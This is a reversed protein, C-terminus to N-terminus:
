ASWQSIHWAVQNHYHDEVKEVRLQPEGAFWRGRIRGLHFGMSTDFGRHSDVKAKDFKQALQGPLTYRLPAYAADELLRRGLEGPTVAEEKILTWWAHLFEAWEEQRTDSEQRMRSRNSLFGEIGAHQLVSGVVRTWTEFSGFM